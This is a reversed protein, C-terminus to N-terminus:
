FRRRNMAASSPGFLVRARLRATNLYTRPRVRTLCRPNHRSRRIMSVYSRLSYGIIIGIILPAFTVVALEMLPSM